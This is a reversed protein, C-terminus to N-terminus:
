ELNEGKVLGFLNDPDTSVEDVEGCVGCSRRMETGDRETFRYDSWDHDGECSPYIEEPTQGGRPFNIPNGEELEDLDDPSLVLNRHNTIKAM